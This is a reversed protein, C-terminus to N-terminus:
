TPRWESGTWHKVPKKVWASGMWVKAPKGVWDSGTWVKALGGIIVGSAVLTQADQARSLVGTVIIKGAASLTQAAQPTSLQGRVLIGGAAVLIQSAQLQNLSGSIVAFAVNGAASLTQSAQPATLIGRAIPGGAAVLTQSAQPISLQGRAVPGGAAVLTQSAQPASLQGRAIPGAQAALAQSAQPQNLAGSLSVTGVSGLAQDAQTQSLSGGIGVVPVNAAAALSNDAQIANLQGSVRVTGAAVVTHAAQSVALAGGVVIAGQASLTQAAQPVSLQGRVTVDGAAVLTQSAQPQNLAGGVSVAGVAALTQNVQPQNLSGGVVPGGTAVLTQAAQAVNLTATILPFGVNAAASLTNDAEIVGLTGGVVVKGQASITQAAQSVSLTAGVAVTGGASITQAAQTVSLTARAVPGGQASLTQAEQTIALTGTISPAAVTANAALTDGVEIVALTGGVVVKAQAALTQAAQSLALDGNVPGVTGAASLTQAAQTLNLTGLCVVPGFSEGMWSLFGSPAAYTLDAVETCLTVINGSANPTIFLNFDTGAVSSVDFGNTGAAPDGSGNGRWATNNRRAWIRKADADWAFCVIDGSVPVADLASVFSNTGNLYWAGSIILVTNATYSSIISTKDKLGPAAPNNTGSFVFETYYIGTSHSTTSRVNASATSNCTATKDANSLTANAGKDNVNWADATPIIEGMWSTFGSLGDTYSLDALKTRLTFASIQSSQGWLAHATNPVTSVDIGNTGTAPNAAADANWLGGNSRFWIREAGTDWAMSIVDGAVAAPGLDVSGPTGLVAIVGTSATYYTGQFASTITATAEHIGVRVSNPTDLVFEAYYKGATGNTRKTTSRVGGSLATTVTATKDSNSLTVNASKDFASWADPTTAIFDPTTIVGASEVYLLVDGSNNGSATIIEWECHVWLYENNLTIAAGPTFTVTSTASVTTSLAATTTGVLVASTIEVPPNTLLDVATTKWLRLKIRGTQSSAVSCRVRFALTWNTNAFTGTFPNETRWCAASQSQISTLRDSTTFSGTVQKQRASMPSMNATAIKGVTWGTTMLAGTPATGGDQLSLSSTAGSPAADKFYLSKVAV